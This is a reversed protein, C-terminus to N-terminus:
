DLDSSFNTLNLELGPAIKTLTLYYWNVPANWLSVRIRANLHTMTMVPMVISVYPFLPLHIWSLRTPITQWLLMTSVAHARLTVQEILILFRRHLRLIDLNEITVPSLEILITPHSHDILGIQFLNPTHNHLLTLCGQM